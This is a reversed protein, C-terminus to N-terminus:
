NYSLYTDIFSLLKYGTSNDVLKNISPLLYSDKPYMRNFSTYDVCMRWKRSGKKVLVVNSIWETYRVEFIFNIDLFGWITKM